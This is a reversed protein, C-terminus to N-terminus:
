CAGETHPLGHVQGRVFERQSEAKAEAHVEMEARAQGKGEAHVGIGARAQGRGGDSWARGPLLAGYRGGFSSTPFCCVGRVLPFSSGTFAFLFGCFVGLCFSM